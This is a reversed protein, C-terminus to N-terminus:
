QRNHGHAAPDVSSTSDAGGDIGAAPDEAVNRQDADSQDNGVAMAANAFAAASQTPIDPNPNMPVQGAGMAAFAAVSQTQINPNPNVPVQHKAQLGIATELLHQM